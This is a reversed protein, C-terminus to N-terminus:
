EEKNVHPLWVEELWTLAHKMDAILEKSNKDFIFGDWAKGPNRANCHVLGMGGGMPILYMNANLDSVFAFSKTKTPEKKSMDESKIAQRVVFRAM